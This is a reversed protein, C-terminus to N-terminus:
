ILRNADCSTPPLWTPQHELRDKLCRLLAQAEAETLTIESM